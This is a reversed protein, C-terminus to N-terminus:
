VTKQKRSHVLVAAAAAAALLIGGALMLGSDGTEPTEPELPEESDAAKNYSCVFLAESREDGEEADEKLEYFYVAGVTYAGADTEGLELRARYVTDSYTWGDADGQEMKVLFGDTLKVLQSQPVSFRVEGRFEGVGDTHVTNELITMQPGRSEGESYITIDPEPMAEVLIRFTEKGPAKEGAQVTKVAVPLTVVVSPEQDNRFTLQEYPTSTGSYPQSEVYLYVTKDMIWIMHSEDSPLYGESAGCQTLTYLGDPASLAAIGEANSPESTYESGESDRIGTLLFAAGELPEDKQNTVRVTFSVAGDEAAAALPLMTLLLLCSLLMGWARRWVYQKKEM